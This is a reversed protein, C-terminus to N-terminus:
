GGKHVGFTERRSPFSDLASADRLWGQFRDSDMVDVARNWRTSYYDVFDFDVASIKAQIAGWLTWGVDSMLAFLNM